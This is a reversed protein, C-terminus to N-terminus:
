SRCHSILQWRKTSLFLCRIKAAKTAKRAQKKPKRNKAKDSAEDLSMLDMFHPFGLFFNPYSLFFFKKVIEEVEIGLWNLEM